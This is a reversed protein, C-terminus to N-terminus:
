QKTFAEEVLIGKANFYWRMETAAATFEMSGSSSTPCSELLTLTTGAASVTVTSKDENDFGESRSSSVLQLTTGTITVVGRAWELPPFAATTSYVTYATM